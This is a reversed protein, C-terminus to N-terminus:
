SVFVGEKYFNGNALYGKKQYPKHLEVIESLSGRCIEPYESPRYCNAKPRVLVYVGELAKKREERYYYSNDLDIAKWIQHKVGNVLVERESSYSNKKNIRGSLQQVTFPIQEDKTPDYPSYICNKELTDMIDAYDPVPVDSVIDMVKTSVTKVTEISYGGTSYSCKRAFYYMKGKDKHHEDSRYSTGSYENFRGLYIIEENKKDLYTAGLIMDKGKYSKGTKLTKNYNLLDNYEPATSPILVLDGSDWGYIFEGELGKGIISSTNDLIYLLNTV